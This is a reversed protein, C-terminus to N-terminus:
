GGAAMKLTNELKRYNRKLDHKRRVHRAAASGMTWRRHPDKLLRIVARTYAQRDKFPTLLGTENHRVVEPVGANDFAVVPLGCAQAELYVMGLAERIGPFVFLDAASYYRNLESRPLRGTFLHRGPVLAQAMARLQAGESGDGVLVLFFPHNGRQLDQCTRLVWRVGESKVDPRFMATALIVPTAGVGWQRRLAQRAQPDRKFRDVEIGPRIYTLKAPDVLRRLNVLDTQQNNVLATARLLARRNLRFGPWTKPNRRRKTAYMGQFIVYPIALKRASDAGLLDPAKYYTHYTLWLHPKFIAAHRQIRRAAAWLRPWQWPKFYIWRARLSSAPYVTHGRNVLFDVLGRATVRDGSPNPHDLPKFPAYFYIRM